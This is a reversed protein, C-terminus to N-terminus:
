QPVARLPTRTYDEIREQLERGATSDASAVARHVRNVSHVIGNIRQEPPLALVPELVEVAGDVEGRAVEIIAFDARSGAADGFAWDPNLPDSYAAVAQSAYNHGLEAEGPLWALADAAFYLHRTRSFTAIGGMEDLEDARVTDWAREARAIADRAGNANGLAAWARAESDALWPLMTSGAREAYETGRQSYRISDRPRGAWYAILAQMGAVWARLGDHDAQEACLGATRSQALAAHPDALDHSAKALMGGLATALFYLRRSDAPRQPRELMTFLADQASVLHGLIEPLPRTPYAQVLDRTDDTLLEMAEESTTHLAAVFRRARDAAVTLAESPTPSSGALAGSGSTVTLAVPSYPALLEEVPRDFAHQLARCTAPNPMGDGRERRALRGLHRSSLTLPREGKQRAAHAVVKAAEDWSLQRQRVIAELLTRPEAM